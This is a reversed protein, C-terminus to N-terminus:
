DKGIPTSGLQYLESMRFIVPNDAINKAFLKQVNENFEIQV